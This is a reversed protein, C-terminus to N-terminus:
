AIFKHQVPVYADEGGKEKLKEISLSLNTVVAPAFRANNLHLCLSKTKQEIKHAYLM